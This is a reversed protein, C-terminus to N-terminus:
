GLLCGLAPDYRVAADAEPLWPRTYKLAKYRGQLEEWAALDAGALEPLKRAQSERLRLQSLMAAHREGQAWLVIGGEAERKLLVVNVTPEDSLRTGIEQHDDLWPQDDGVYGAALDLLNYRAM